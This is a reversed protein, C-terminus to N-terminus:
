FHVLTFVFKGEKRDQMNQILFGKKTAVGRYYYPNLIEEHILNFKKDFASLILNGRRNEKESQAFNWRFFLAEKPLYSISYFSPNKTFLNNLSSRDGSYRNLPIGESENASLHSQAPYSKIQDNDIQYIFVTSSVPFNYIVKDCAFSINAKNNPFILAQYAKPYTTNLKTFILNKLDLYGFLSQQYYEKKARALLSKTPLYLRNKEKCFFIPNMFDTSGCFVNKSFDIGKIQTNNTNNIRYNFKIQTKKNLLLLNTSTLVFISDMNHVYFSYIQAIRNPGTKQFPIKGIVVKNDLDYGELQHAKPNYAWFQEKGEIENTHFFRYFDNFIYAGQDIEVTELLFKKNSYNPKNSEPATQKCSLVILLLFSTLINKNM